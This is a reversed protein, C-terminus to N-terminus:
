AIFTSGKMNLNNKMEKAWIYAYLNSHGLRFDDKILVNFFEM